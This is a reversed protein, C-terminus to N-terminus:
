NDGTSEASSKNQTDELYMFRQLVRLIRYTDRERTSRHKMLDLFTNGDHDKALPDAGAQKLLDIIDFIMSVPDHNLDDRVLLPVNNGDWEILWRTCHEEHLDNWAGGPSFGHRSEYMALCNERLVPNSWGNPEGRAWNEYVFPEGNIWEWKQTQKNFEAGLALWGGLSSAQDQSAGKDVLEELIFQNETESEVTGLYAGLAQAMRLARAQGPAPVNAQRPAPVNIIAYAHGNGGNNKKWWVVRGFNQNIWNPVHHFATMGNNNKIETNAGYKLLESILDPQAGIKLAFMLATEGHQNQTNPDANAVLLKILDASSQNALTIMLPNVDTDDFTNLPSKNKILVQAVESNNNLLAIHLATQGQMNSIGVTAGANVLMETFVPNSEKAAHMLATFGDKDRRDLNAGQRIALSAVEYNQANIAQMLLTRDQQDVTDANVGSDILRAIALPNDSRLAIDLYNDEASMRDTVDLGAEILLPLCQPDEALLAYMMSDYAKNDRIRLDAQAEILVTAVNAFGYQCAWMLATKGDKDQTNPNGGADIISQLSRANDFAAAYMLATRGNEDSKHIDTGAQILTITTLPDLDQSAAIMLSTCGTSDQADVNAGAKLLLELADQDADPNAVLMHLPTKGTGKPDPRNADAGLDIFRQLHKATVESSQCAEYITLFITEEDENASPSSSTTHAHNDQSHQALSENSDTAKTKLPTPSSDSAHQRDAQKITQSGDDECCSLMMTTILLLACTRYTM